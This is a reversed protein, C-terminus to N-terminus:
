AELWPSGDLTHKLFKNSVMRTGELLKFNQIFLYKATEKALPSLKVLQKLQGNWKINNKM